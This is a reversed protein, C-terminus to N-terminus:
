GDPDVGQNILEYRMEEYQWEEEPGLFEEQRELYERYMEEIEEESPVPAWCFRCLEEM